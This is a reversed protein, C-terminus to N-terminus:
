KRTRNDFAKQGINKILLKKDYDFQDYVKKNKSNCYSLYINGRPKDTKNNKSFHPCLNDFILISGLSCEIPVSNKTMNKNEFFPKNDKIYKKFLSNPTGKLRKHVYLCGNKKSNDDLMINMSFFKTAYTYWGLTKRKLRYNYSKFLGDFHLGYSNEVGKQKFIYKDKFLVPNFNFIDFIEKLKKNHIIDYVGTHRLNEIRISKGKVQTKVIKKKDTKRLLSKIKKVEKETYFKEILFFGKSDFEKKYKKTFM